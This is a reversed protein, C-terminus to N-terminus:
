ACLSNCNVFLTIYNYGQGVNPLRSLACFVCFFGWTWPAHVCSLVFDVHADLSDLLEVLGHMMVGGMLSHDDGLVYGVWVFSLFVWFRFGPVVKVLVVRNTLAGM